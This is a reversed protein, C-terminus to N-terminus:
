DNKTRYVREYKGGKIKNFIYICLFGILMGISDICVDKLSGTRGPIFLQHFEDSLAYLVTIFGSYLYVRDKRILVVTRYALIGLVFYSFMHACKRVIFSITTIFTSHTLDMHLITGLLEIVKGSTSSSEQGNQMSFMFIVCMWAVLLVVRFILKKKKM